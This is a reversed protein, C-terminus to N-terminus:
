TTARATLVTGLTIVRNTMGMVHITDLIEHEHLTTTILIPLPMKAVQSPALVPVGRIRKGHHIPNGDVFAQIDAEGLSTEALLKILLQGTGWVIIPGLGELSARIKREMAELMRSSELIYTEIAPRTTEDMSISRRVPMVRGGHAVGLAFMAPYPKGPSLLLRRQGWAFVEFGCDALLNALSNRSFHNIHETNFDQFPALLCEVYRTADPVEVYLVGGPKLTSLVSDLAPRLDRVHELVHSLLVADAPAVKGPLRALSGEYAEIGHDMQVNFVCAPSPDVGCLNLFGLRKLAALLGGNACGVDVIRAGRNPLFGALDEATERMRHSDYTSHGGGTSTTNDEYRSERIYYAEYDDQTARTDAFVLGCSNCCVVNYGNGLPHGEPLIFRQSHLIDRANSDCVPCLRSTSPVVGTVTRNITM